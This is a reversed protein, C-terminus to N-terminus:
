VEICRSRYSFKGDQISGFSDEGVTFGDITGAFTADRSSGKGSDGYRCTGDDGSSRYKSSFIPGIGTWTGAVTVNRNSAPVCETADCIAMEVSITRSALTVSSLGSGFAITGSPLDVDCGKGVTEGVVDGTETDYTYEDVYVCVQNAHTVGSLTSSMKGVFVSAGLDTCTETADEHLICGGSAYVDASKGNQTWTGDGGPGGTDAAVSGASLVLLATVAALTLGVRSRSRSSQFM